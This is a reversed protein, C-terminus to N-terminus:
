KHLLFHILKFFLTILLFGGATAFGYILSVYYLNQRYTLDLAIDVSTSQFLALENYSLYEYSGRDSWGLNGIILSGNSAMQVNENDYHVRSMKSLCRQEVIGNNKSCKTSNDLSYIKGFPSIWLGNELENENVAELQITEFVRAQIQTSNQTLDEFHKCFNRRFNSLHYNTGNFECSQVIDKPPSCDCLVSDIVVDMLEENAKFIRHPLRLEPNQSLDLKTLSKQSWIIWPCFDRLNGSSKASFFTLQDKFFTATQDLSHLQSSFDLHFERISISLLSVDFTKFLNGSLDCFKLYEFSHLFTAPLRDIRNYSLDLHEIQYHSNQEPIWQLGCQSLKLYTMQSLSYPLSSYNTLTDCGEISLEQLRSFAM